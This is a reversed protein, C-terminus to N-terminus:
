LWTTLEGLPKRDPLRSMEAPWGLPTMAVPELDASLAMVKRLEAPKFAGIWCTGLGEAQAALTLHDFAIAVDVFAYSVGDSRKWAAGTKACAVIVVPANTLWDKAYAEKLAARRAADTVVFFHWAQRNGASPALRAADLVKEILDRPVTKAQYARVSRRGKIAEFLDM